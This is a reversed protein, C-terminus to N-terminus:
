KGTKKTPLMKKINANPSTTPMTSTPTKLSIRFNDMGLITKKWSVNMAMKIRGAHQMTEAFTKKSLSEQTWGAAKAEDDTWTSSFPAKFTKWVKNDCSFDEFKYSWGNDTADFRVVMAPRFYPSVCEFPKIDMEFDGLHRQAYNGTYQPAISTFGVEMQGDAKIFGGPNGGTTEHNVKIKSICSEWGALGSDFAENVGTMTPMNPAAHLSVPMTILALIFIFNKM